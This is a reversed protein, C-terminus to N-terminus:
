RGTNIKVETVHGVKLEEAQGVGSRPDTVTQMADEGGGGLFFSAPTSVGLVM